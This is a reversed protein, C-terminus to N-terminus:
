WDMAKGDRFFGGTPGSAPLTAAWVIGAIGEEITRNAASGGMDTQVWGPCVSNVKVSTGSFEIAFIRTLANLATKSARYAPYAGSMDSLQGMGSSVNVVRGAESKRLLPALAQILQFPGVTNTRYTELLTEPKVRFVSAQNEDFSGRSSDLFVGANNVLVDLRGFEKQLDSALREADAASTVDLAYPRVDGGKAQVDAAAREIKAKERGLMLVLYGREALAEATGLGLGRNAGTVVAIKKDM